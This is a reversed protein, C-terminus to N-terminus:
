QRKAKALILYEIIDDRTKVETRDRAFEIYNSKSPKYKSGQFEGMGNTNYYICIANLDARKEEVLYKIFEFDSKKIAWGLLPMNFRYHKWDVDRFEISVGMDIFKKTLETNNKSYAEILCFGNPKIGSELLFDIVDKNNDVLAKYLDETNFSFKYGGMETLMKCIHLDQSQRIVEVEDSSLKAGLKILMYITGYDFGAEFFSGGLPTISIWKELFWERSNPYGVMPRSKIIPKQYIGDLKAGKEIFLKILTTDHTQIVDMLYPKRVPISTPRPGGNNIHDYNIIYSGNVSMGADLYQVVKDINKKRIAELFYPEMDNTPIYITKPQAILMNTSSIVFLLLVTIITKMDNKKYTQEM